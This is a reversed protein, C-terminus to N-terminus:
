ACNGALHQNICQVVEGISVSGDLDSDAVPCSLGPETVNCFPDGLHHKICRVVEAISVAGDADCDGQCSTVKLTGAAGTTTLAHGATDSSGSTNSLAYSGTTASGAIAFRATCLVGNPIANVGGPDLVIVRESGPGVTSHTASKNVATGPGIAPNILAETFSFLSANFGIDTSTAAVQNNGTILSAGICAV